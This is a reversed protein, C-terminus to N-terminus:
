PFLDITPSSGEKHYPKFIVDNGQEGRIRNDWQETTRNDKQGMTRNDRQGKTRNDWQETTRKDEQGMTRYVPQGITGKGWQGM